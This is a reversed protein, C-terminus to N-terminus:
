RPMIVSSDSSDANENDELVPELDNIGIEDDVDTDTNADVDTEDSDVDGDVNFAGNEDFGVSSNIDNGNEIIPNNGNGLDNQDNLNTEGNDNGCGTLALGLVLSSALIAKLSKM